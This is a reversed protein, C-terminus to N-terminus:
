TSRSGPVKGPKAFEAVAWELWRKKETGYAIGVEIEPGGGLGLFGSSNQKDTAAPSSTSGRGLQNNDYLWWAGYLCAGAFFAVVLKGLFTIKPGDSPPRPQFPANM